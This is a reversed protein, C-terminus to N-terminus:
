MDMTVGSTPIAVNAYHKLIYAEETMTLADQQWKDTSEIGIISTTGLGNGTDGTRQLNDTHSIGTVQATPQQLPGPADLTMDHDLLIISFTPAAPPDSNLPDRTGSTGQLGEAGTAVAKPSKVLENERYPQLNPQHRTSDTGTHIM